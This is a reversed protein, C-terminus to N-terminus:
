FGPEVEVAIEVAGVDAERALALIRTALGHRAQRDGHLRVAPAGALRERLVVEWGEEPLPEGAVTVRGTADFRVVLPEEGAGGGAAAEVEPLDVQLSDPAPESSAVLFAFCALVAFIVDLLPVIDPGRSSRAPPTATAWPGGPAGPPLLEPM